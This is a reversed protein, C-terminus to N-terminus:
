RQAARRPPTARQGRKAPAVSAKPARPAASARAKGRRPGPALMVIVEQGPKFRAQRSVGNWQAVLAPSVKYRQAVRQVDDGKRAKFAVRRLPRPEPALAIAANDAIHEAV